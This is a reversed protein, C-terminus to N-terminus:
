VIIEQETGFSILSAKLPLFQVAGVKRCIEKYAQMSFHIMHTWRHTLVLQLIVYKM